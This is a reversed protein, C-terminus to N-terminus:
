PQLAHAPCARMPEMLTTAQEVKRPVCVFGADILSACRFNFEDDDFRHGDRYQRVMDALSLVETDPM